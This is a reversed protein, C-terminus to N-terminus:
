SEKLWEKNRQEEVSVDSLHKYGKKKCWCLIARSENDNCMSGDELMILGALKHKKGYEILGEVSSDM